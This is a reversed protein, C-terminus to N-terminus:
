EVTVKHYDLPRINKHFHKGKSEAALLANYDEATTTPYAYVEGTKFQIMLKFEEHFYISKINSSDVETFHTVVFDKSVRSM